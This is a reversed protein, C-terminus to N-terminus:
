HDSKSTTPNTKRTYRGVHRELITAAPARVRVAPHVRWPIPLEQGLFVVPGQFEQFTM